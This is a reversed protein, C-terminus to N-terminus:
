ASCVQSSGVQVPGYKGASVKGICIQAIGAEAAHDGVVGGGGGPWMPERWRLRPASFALAVRGLMRARWGMFVAQPGGLQDPPPGGVYDCAGGPVFERSITAKPGPVPTGGSAM